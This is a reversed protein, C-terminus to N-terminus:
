SLLGPLSSYIGKTILVLLGDFVGFVLGALGVGILVVITNKRTELVEPFTVKGFEGVVGELYERSTTWSYLFAFLGFGLSISIGIVWIDVNPVRAELNFTAVAQTLLTKSVFWLLVGALAFSGNVWRQQNEM